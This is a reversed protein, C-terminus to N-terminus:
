KEELLSQYHAIHRHAGWAAPGQEGKAGSGLREGLLRPM